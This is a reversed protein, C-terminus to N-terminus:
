GPIGEIRRGRSILFLRERPDRNVKYACGMGNERECPGARSWKTGIPTSRCRMQGELRWRPNFARELM